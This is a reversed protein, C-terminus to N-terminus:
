FALRCEIEQRTSDIHEVILWADAADATETWYGASDDGTGPTLMDGVALTPTTGLGAVIVRGPYDRTHLFVKDVTNRFVVKVMDGSVVQCAQGRPVKDKDSFTTLYPDSGAYAAPAWEYLVIGSLGKKPAQAGTALAVPLRGMEDATAGDAVRVPAGIPIDAPATSPLAYRAGRQGGDPPVRFEFNRGYTGV